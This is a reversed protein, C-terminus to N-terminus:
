GVRDSSHCGIAYGDFRKDVGGDNKIFKNYLKYIKLNQFVKGFYNIDQIWKIYEEWDVLPVYKKEYSADQEQAAPVTMKISRRADIVVVEDIIGNIEGLAQPDLDLPCNNPGGGQRMLEITVDFLAKMATMADLVDKRSLVPGPFREIFKGFLTTTRNSKFRVAHMCKIISENLKEVDRRLGIQPDTGHADSTGLDILTVEYEDQYPNVGRYLGSGADLKRRLMINGINLDGHTKGRTYLDITSGLIASCVCFMNLRALYLDDESVLQGNDDKMFIDEYGLVPPNRQPEGHLFSKLSEWGELYEMLCFHITRKKWRFEGRQYINAVNADRVSANKGIEKAFKDPDIEQLAVKLIELRPKGRYALSKNKVLFISGNAGSALQRAVKYVGPYEKELMRKIFKRSYEQSSTAAVGTPSKHRVKKKAKGM